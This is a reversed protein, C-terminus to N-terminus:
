ILIFVSKWSKESIFNEMKYALQRCKRRLDFTLFLKKSQFKKFKGM